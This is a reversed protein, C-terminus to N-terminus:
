EITKPKIEKLSPFKELYAEYEAKILSKVEQRFEENFRSLYNWILDIICLGSYKLYFKPNKPPNLNM